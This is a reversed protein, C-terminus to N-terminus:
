RAAHQQKEMKFMYKRLSFIPCTLSRERPWAQSRCFCIYWLSLQRLVSVDLMDVILSFHSYHFTQSIFNRPIEGFVSAASCCPDLLTQLGSLFSRPNIAATRPFVLGHSVSIACYDTWFGRSMQGGPLDALTVLRKGLVRERGRKRSPLTLPSSKEWCCGAECEFLEM